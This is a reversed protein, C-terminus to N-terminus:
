KPHGPPFQELVDVLAMGYWGMARAWVHPSRGTTKDAWQQERSEDFGHLLLGTKADRSYQEMLIFQRAIDNFATDDSFRNSWEAYFPEAMYLGDLWMQHPYVKKHWFGGTKIRPHTDLQERLSLAAKYYQQKGTVNYLMLLNRGPLVNDLNYESQKYTRIVGDGDVFLDMSKQIYDFYKKDGTAIWLGEIGKLIVGQDYRWKVPQGPVIDLSDKWITMATEAMKAAWNQGSVTFGGLCLVVILTIIIKRM